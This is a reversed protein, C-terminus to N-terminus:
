IHTTVNRPNPFNGRWYEHSPSSILRELDLVEAYGNSGSSICYITPPIFQSASLCSKALPVWAPLISPSQYCVAQRRGQWLKTPNKCLCTSFRLGSM